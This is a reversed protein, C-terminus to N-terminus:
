SSLEWVAFSDKTSPTRTLTFEENKFRLVGGTEEREVWTYESGINYDISSFLNGDNSYDDVMKKNLWFTKEHSNLNMVANEVMKYSANADTRILRPIALAAVISIIVLVAIIEVLTFGKQNKTNM